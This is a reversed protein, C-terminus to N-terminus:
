DGRLEVAPNTNAIRHFQSAITLFATGLVISLSIFFGLSGVPMPDAFISGLLATMGFYGLPAAIVSAIAIIIFFTRNLEGALSGLSAGLVKRISIERKRRIVKQSVLGFLGMCSIILALFAVFSFLSRINRNELYIRDFVGDQFFAKYERGPMLEKWVSAVAENTAAAAGAAAQITMYSFQRDPTQAIIMPEMPSYIDDYQVNAVVGSVTLVLSDQRVEQGIAGEPTWGSRAVFLENVMVAGDVDTNSGDTFSEGAILELEYLDVFGPGVDFRVVGMKDPGDTVTTTTWSSWFNHQAGVIQEVGPLREVAGALQEYMGAERLPVIIKQEAAYGWDRDAQYAANQTMVVGTIMTLFALIFQFTLFTYTLPNEGGLTTRGRFIAIPSFRSIYFAPYAGSSIATVLLLGGLFIWLTATNADAPTVGGGQQAFMANFGPVFWGFALLVGVGLSLACVLTNEALFQLIIQGRTGGMTKRVAIERLRRTATALAINVYNLCSLLLMFLALVGFVIRAAAPSGGALSGNVNSATTALDYLNVFRFSAIPLDEDVANQLAKYSEMQAAVVGAHDPNTLQIFTAQTRVDWRLVDVDRYSYPVIANFRFGAKSPFPAAIAVVTFTAEREDSFRLTVPSGIPNSEGFFKEAMAHSLVISDAERLRTPDGLRMPFSLMEMLAPDAYWLWEEFSNGNSTATASGYSIRAAREVQPIGAEMAAALPIPSPGNLQVGNGRDIETMVQFINEGGVHFQDRTLEAEIFFFVFVATAVAISMGAVNMLSSAKSKLLNRYAVRFYNAFMLLTWSISDSLLHPLSRLAQRWYWANAVLRGDTKARHSYMQHVDGMAAERVPPAVCRSLIREALRPPRHTM